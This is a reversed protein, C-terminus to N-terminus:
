PWHDCSGNAGTNMWAKGGSVQFITGIVVGDTASSANTVTGGAALKGWYITDAAPSGSTPIGIAAGNPNYCFHNSTILYEYTVNTTPASMVIGAFPASGGAPQVRMFGNEYYELAMGQAPTTASVYQEPHGCWAGPECVILSHLTYNANNISWWPTQGYTTLLSTFSGTFLLGGDGFNPNDVYVAAVMGSVPAPEGAVLDFTDRYANPLMFWLNMPSGAPRYTANYTIDLHRFNSEQVTLAGGAISAGFAFNPGYNDDYIFGLGLSEANVSNFDSAAMVGSSNQGYNDVPGPELRICKPAFGCFLLDVNNENWYFDKDLSINALASGATELHAIRNNGYLFSSVAGVRLNTVNSLLSVNGWATHDIAEYTAGVYFGSGTINDLFRRTGSLMGWTRTGVTGITPSTSGMPGILSFDTEKGNYYNASAYRGLQNDWTAYPVGHSWAARGAGAESPWTFYTAAEGQGVIDVGSSFINNAAITSEHIVIGGLANGSVTVTAPNMVCKGSPVQVRAGTATATAAEIAAQTGLWDMEAAAVMADTLPWSIYVWYNAGATSAGSQISPKNATLGNNITIISPPQFTITTSGAISAATIGYKLVVHTADSSVVYDDVSLGTQPIPHSGVPTPTGSNVLISTTGRTPTTGNTVQTVTGPNSVTSVTTSGAIGTGTVTAGVPIQLASDVVLATATSVAANVLTLDVKANWQGNNIWSYPTGGGISNAYTALASITNIGLVTSISHHSGDCVSGYDKINYVDAARSSATRATPSGTAPFPTTGFNRADVPGYVPAQSFAPGTAIPLLFAALLLTRNM